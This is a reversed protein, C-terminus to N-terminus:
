EGSNLLFIAHVLMKIILADILIMRVFVNKVHCVIVNLMKIFTNIANSAHMIRM